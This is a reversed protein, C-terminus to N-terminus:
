SPFAVNEIVQFDQVLIDRKAKNALSGISNAIGLQIAGM